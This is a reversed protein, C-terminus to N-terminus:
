ALFTATNKGAAKSIYLAQDARQLMTNFTDEDKYATYGISLNIQLEQAESNRSVPITKHNFEELIRNVVTSAANKDNDVICLVFEDGGFRGITDCSRLLRKLTHATTKIAEDGILHGYTDNIPKFDDIDLIILFLAQASRKIKQIEQHVVTVFMLRNYLGTLGDFHSLNEVEVYSKNLFYALLTVLSSIIVTFVFAYILTHYVITQQMSLWDSIYTENVFSLALYHEVHQQHLLLVPVTSMFLNIIFTMAGLLLPRKLMTKPLHKM